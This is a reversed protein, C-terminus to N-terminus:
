RRGRATGRADRMRGTSRTYWTASRRRRRREAERGPEPQVEAHQGDPLVRREDERGVRHQPHDARAHRARGDRPASSRGRASTSMVCRSRARCRARGRSSRAAPPEDGEPKAGEQREIATESALRKVRTSRRPPRRQPAVELLADSRVRARVARLEGRRVVCSRSRVRSSASALRALLWNRALMLWSIRVGMFPTIPMARAAALVRRERRSCRSYASIM